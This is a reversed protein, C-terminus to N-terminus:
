KNAKRSVILYDTRRDILSEEDVRGPGKTKKDRTDKMAIM